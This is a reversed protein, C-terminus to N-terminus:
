RRPRPSASRTLLRSSKSPLENCFLLFQTLSIEMLLEASRGALSAPEHGLVEKDRFLADSIEEPSIGAYGMSFARKSRSFGLFDLSKWARIETKGVRLIREDL